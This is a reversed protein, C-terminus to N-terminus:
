RYGPEAVIAALGDFIINLSDLVQKLPLRPSVLVIVLRDGPFESAAILSLARARTGVFVSLLSQPGQRARSVGRPQLQWEASSDSVLGAHM